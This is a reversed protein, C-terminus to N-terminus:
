EESYPVGWIFSMLVIFEGIFDRDFMKTTSTRPRNRSKVQNPLKIACIKSMNQKTELRM